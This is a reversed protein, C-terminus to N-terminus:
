DTLLLDSDTPLVDRDEADSTGYSVFFSVADIGGSFPGSGVEESRDEVVLYVIVAGLQPMRMKMVRDTAGSLMEADGDPLTSELYWRYGFPMTGDALSAEISITDSAGAPLRVTEGAPVSLGSHGPVAVLIRDIQPADYQLAVSKKALLFSKRAPLTTGDGMRVTAQLDVVAHGATKYATWVTTGFIDVDAAADEVPIVYHAVRDVPLERVENGLRWIVSVDDREAMNVGALLMSFTVTDGPSFVPQDAQLAIIRPGTIKWAPDLAKNECGIGAFLLLLLGCTPLYKRM